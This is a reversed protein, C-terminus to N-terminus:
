KLPLGGIYDSKGLGVGNKRMISYATAVHFYFNPVLYQTVYDFASMQKKNWFMKLLSRGYGWMGRGDYEDFYKVLLANMGADSLHFCLEEENIRVADLKGATGNLIVNIAEKLDTAIGM